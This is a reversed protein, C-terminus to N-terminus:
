RVVGKLGAIEAELSQIRAAHDAADLTSRQQITSVTEALGIIIEKVDAPLSAAAAIAPLEPAPQIDPTFEKVPVIASYSLGHKKCEEVPDTGEIMMMQVIRGDLTHIEYNM